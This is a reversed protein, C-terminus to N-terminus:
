YGLRTLISLVKKEEKTLEGCKNFKPNKIIERYMLAINQLEKKVFADDAWNHSVRDEVYSNIFCKVTRLEDIQKKIEESIM